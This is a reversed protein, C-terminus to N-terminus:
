LNPNLRPLFTFRNRPPSTHLARLNELREVRPERTIFLSSSDLTELPAPAFPQLTEPKPVSGSSHAAKPTQPNRKNVIELRSNLSVFTWSGQIRARRPVAQPRPNVIEPKPNPIELKPSRTEPKPNLTGLFTTYRLTSSLWRIFSVAVRCM